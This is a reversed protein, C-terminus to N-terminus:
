IDEDEENKDSGEADDSVAIDEAEIEAALTDAFEQVKEANPSLGEEADVVAEAETGEAGEEGEEPEEIERDTLAFDVVRAKNSKMLKVGSTARSLTPIENARVRIIVGQSTIILLDDDDTVSVTGCLRGTKESVKYTIIGKGGRSQVRYDDIKSRKGYGLESIVLIERSPDVPEMGVVEDDDALKM